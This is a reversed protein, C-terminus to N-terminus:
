NVTDRACPLQGQMDAYDYYEAYTKKFEQWKQVDGVRGFCDEMSTLSDNLLEDFLSETPPM